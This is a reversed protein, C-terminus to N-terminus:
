TNHYLLMGFIVGAGLGCHVSLQVNGAQLPLALCQLGANIAAMTAASLHRKFNSAPFVALIADGAFKIIDGGCNLITEIMEALNQGIYLSLEEAAKQMNGEFNKQLEEALKSFGSIDAFLVSGRFKEVSLKIETIDNELIDNVHLELVRFPVLSTLHDLRLRVVDEVTQNSVVTGSIASTLTKRFDIVKSAGNRKKFSTDSVKSLSGGAMTM